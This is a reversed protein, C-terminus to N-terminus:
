GQMVFVSNTKTTVHVEFHIVSEWMVEGESKKNSHWGNEVWPNECRINFKMVWSYVHSKLKKMRFLYLVIGLHGLSTGPPNLKSLNDYM